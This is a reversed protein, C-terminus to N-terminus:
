RLFIAGDDANGVFKAVQTKIVAAMGAMGVTVVYLVSQRSDPSITFVSVIWDTVSPATLVGFAAEAFTWFIRELSNKNM